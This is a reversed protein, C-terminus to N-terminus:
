ALIRVTAPRSLSLCRMLKAQTTMQTKEIIYFYTCRLKQWCLNRIASRFCDFFLVTVLFSRFHVFLTFKNSILVIRIKANSFLNFINACSWSDTSGFLDFINRIIWNEKIKLLLGLFGVFGSDNMMQVLVGFRIYRCQFWLRNSYDNLDISNWCDVVRISGFITEDICVICVKGTTFVIPCEITFCQFYM